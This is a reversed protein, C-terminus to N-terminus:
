IKISNNKLNFIKKLKVRFYKDLYAKFQPHNLKNLPINASTFAEITDQIVDFSDLPEQLRRECEKHSKTDLHQFVSSKRIHDVVTNCIKCYLKNKKVILNQDCELRKQPTTKM